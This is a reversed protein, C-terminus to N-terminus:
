RDSPIGLHWLLAARVELLSRPPGGELSPSSIFIGEPAHNASGPGADTGRLHVGNWGVTGISRWGLGAFFAMLDPPIGRVSRYATQPRLVRSGLTRGQDDRIAEIGAAIEEQLEEYRDPPVVGQPERGEVNFFIRGYYGGAGWAKTRSWDVRGDAILDEIREPEPPYSTLTLYGNDILWENVAIGGQVPQVGHDSAVWITTDQPLVEIFSAIRADLFRYYDRIAHRFPGGTEHLPHAPDHHSWFAHHMRDPGMEVLAFFSWDEDAALHRAVQFRRPTMERIREQLASLDAGGIASVDFLYEGVWDRIRDKLSPPYTYTTETGPTLPGAVLKGAIPSPPYTGPIGLLVSRRGHQALTKWVPAAEAFATSNVIEFGEYSSDRRNRFGYVGLEGPDRGTMMCMWAPVTIPPDVSRLPTFTGREALGRLTPLDPLLDRVLAPDACDLGILAVRKM